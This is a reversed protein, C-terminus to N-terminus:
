AYRETIMKVVRFVVLMLVTNVLIEQLNNCVNNEHRAMNISLFVVFQGLMSRFFDKVHQPFDAVTLGGFVSLILSAMVLM